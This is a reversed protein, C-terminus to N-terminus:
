ESPDPDPLLKAIEDEDSVFEAIREETYIELPVSVAPRLLIGEPTDEAILEMGAMLGFARRLAAPITIVGRETITVREKM